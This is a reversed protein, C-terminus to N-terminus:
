VSGLRVRLSRPLRCPRRWRQPYSRRHLRFLRSCTSYSPKGAVTTKRSTELIQGRLWTGVVVLCCYRGAEILVPEPAIKMDAASLALLCDYDACARDFLDRM